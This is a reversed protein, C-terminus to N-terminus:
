RSTSNHCVWLPIVDASLTLLPIFILVIGREIVGLTRLIHTKEAGTREIVALHYPKMPHLLCFVADLQALFMDPVGWVSTSAAVICVKLRDDDCGGATAAGAMTAAMTRDGISADPVIPLPHNDDGDFPPDRSVYHPVLSTSPPSPTSDSM